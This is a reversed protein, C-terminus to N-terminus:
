KSQSSTDGTETASTTSGSTTASEATGATTTSGISSPTPSESTGTSVNTTPASTTSSTTNSTTSGTTSSTTSGTTSSTTSGTTSSTTSGTTSSTTSGTTSSTTSGTTSSTAGTGSTNTSATVVGNNFDHLKAILTNMPDISDSPLKCSVTKSIGMKTATVDATAGEPNNPQLRSQVITVWMKAHVKLGKINNVAISGDPQELVDFSVLKDLSLQDVDNNDITKVFKDALNLQFRNGQDLKCLGIQQVGSEKFADAVKPTLESFDIVRYVKALSALDNSLEADESGNTKYHEESKKFADAADIYKGNKQYCEGLRKWSLPLAPDREGCFEAEAVAKLWTQEAKNYDGADLAKQGSQSLREWKPCEAHAASFSAASFSSALLFVSLAAVKNKM